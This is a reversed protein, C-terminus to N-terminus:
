ENRQRHTSGNQDPTAAPQRARGAPRRADLSEMVIEALMTSAVCVTCHAAPCRPAPRPVHTNDDIQAVVRSGLLRVDVKCRRRARSPRPESARGPARM